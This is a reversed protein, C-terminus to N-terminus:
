PRVWFELVIGALTCTLITFGDWHGGHPMDWAPWDCGEHIRPIAQLTVRYHTWPLQVQLSWFPSRILDFRGRM